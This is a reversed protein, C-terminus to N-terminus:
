PDCWQEVGEGDTWAVTRSRVLQVAVLSRYADHDGKARDSATDIDDLCAALIQARRQWQDREVRAMTLNHDLDTVGGHLRSTVDPTVDGNEVAAIANRLNAIRDDTSMTMEQQLRQKAREQWGAPPEIDSALTALDDDTM